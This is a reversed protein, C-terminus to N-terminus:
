NQMFDFIQIRIKAFIKFRIIPIFPTQSYAFVTHLSYSGYESLNAEFRIFFNRIRRVRLVLPCGVASIYFLGSSAPLPGAIRDRIIGCGMTLWEDINCINIQQSEVTSSVYMCVLMRRGGVKGGFVGIPVEWWREELYVVHVEWGGDWWIGGCPTGVVMGGSVGCAGGVWRGVLYVWMSNGGVMGGCVGCTGGVWRGVLYVSMCNGGGNRWICWMCRGGAMGGFVGVHLEWGGDRWMCWMHRGGVKGGFVGVHVEWWGHWGGM